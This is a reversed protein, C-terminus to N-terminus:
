FVEFGRRLNQYHSTGDSVIYPKEGTATSVEPKSPTFRANQTDLRVFRATEIGEYM